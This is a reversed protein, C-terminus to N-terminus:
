ARKLKNLKVWKLQNLGMKFEYLIMKFINLTKQAWKPGNQSEAWKAVNLSTQPWKSNNSSMWAGKAQKLKNSSKSKCGNLKSENRDTLYIRSSIVKMEMKSIRQLNHAVVTMLKCNVFFSILHILIKKIIIM